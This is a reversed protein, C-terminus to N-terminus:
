LLAGGLPRTAVPFRPKEYKKRVAWFTPVDCRGLHNIKLAIENPTVANNRCADHLLMNNKHM